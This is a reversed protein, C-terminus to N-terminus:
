PDDLRWDRRPEPRDTEKHWSPSPRQYQSLLRKADNLIEMIYNHSNFAMARARLMIRM